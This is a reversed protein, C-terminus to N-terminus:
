IIVMDLTLCPTSLSQGSSRLVSLIQAITTDGTLIVNPCQPHRLEMYNYLSLFLSSSSTSGSSSPTSSSSM